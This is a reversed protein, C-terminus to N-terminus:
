ILEKNLWYVSQHAPGSRDLTLQQVVGSITYGMGVFFAVSAPTVAVRAQTCFRGRAAEEVMQVLRRGIGQDRMPEDVWLMDLALVGRYTVASAGAVVDGEVDDLSIDLPQADAPHQGTGAPLAAGIRRSLYKRYDPDPENTTNFEYTGSYREQLEAISVIQAPM